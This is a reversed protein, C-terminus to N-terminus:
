ESIPCRKPYRTEASGILVGVPLRRVVNECIGIRGMLHELPDSSNVGITVDRSHTNNQMSRHSEVECAIEIHWRGSNRAFVALIKIIQRSLNLCDSGGREVGKVALSLDIERGSEHRSMELETMRRLRQDRRERMRHQAFIRAKMGILHQLRRDPLEGDPAVAVFAPVDENRSGAIKRSMRWGFARRPLRGVYGAAQHSAALQM